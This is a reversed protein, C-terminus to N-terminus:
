YNSLQWETAQRYGSLLFGTYYFVCKLSVLSSGTRFSIPTVFLISVTFVESLTVKKLQASLVSFIDM